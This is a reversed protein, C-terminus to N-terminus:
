YLTRSRGRTGTCVGSLETQLLFARSGRGTGPLGVWYYLLTCRTATLVAAVVSGSLLPSGCRFGWRRSGHPAAARLLIIFSACAGGSRSSRAPASVLGGLLRRRGRGEPGQGLFHGKSAGSLPGGRPPGRWCPGHSTTAGLLIFFAFTRPRWLGSAALEVSALTGGAQPAMPWACSWLPSTVEAALAARLGGRAVPARFSDGPGIQEDCSCVRDQFLSWTRDAWRLPLGSM